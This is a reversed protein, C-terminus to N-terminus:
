STREVKEPVVPLGTRQSEVLALAVSLSAAGDRVSVDPPSRKEVAELFHHLESLFLQNRPVDGYSRTETVTGAPGYWTLTGDTLSWELKGGDGVVTCQRKAPRAVYDQHLRVPLMAGDPRRYELLSSAVDEVDIELKSLHGGISFVREPMGFLGYLYDLEHIQTLTVGGGLDRRSAYMRRYDEYPHFAPLYEGVEASVTLVNGIVNQSLLNRLQLYGPHRRLQYGVFCVLKKEDIVRALAAVGELSHSLPKELFLHCGARAARFAVDLHLSTPNTVFVVNPREALAEDLDTFVRVGYKDAVDAGPEITLKDDLAHKEGRVRYALVEADRGLLTRLNRLHRQGIGGLGVFLCKLM